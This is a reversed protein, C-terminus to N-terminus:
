LRSNYDENVPELSTMDFVWSHNPNRNCRLIHDIPQNKNANIMRLKGPCGNVPCKGIVRSFYLQGNEDSELNGLFSLGMSGSRWKLGVGIVFLIASIALIPITLLEILRETGQPFINSTVSFISAFGAFISFIVGAIGFLISKGTTLPIRLLTSRQAIILVPNHHTGIPADAQVNTINNTINSDLFEGGNIQIGSNSQNNPREM